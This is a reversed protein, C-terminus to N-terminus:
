KVKKLSEILDKSPDIYITKEERISVFCKRKGPISKIYKIKTYNVAVSSSNQYTSYYAALNACMRIDNETYDSDKKLLVHSGPADKVHFWLDEKRSLDHTIIENQINNKGVYVLSGDIEFTLIQPKQLKQTKKQPILYKEKILEDQIQLVDDLVEANEIQSELLKFYEIENSAQELERNAYIKTNKSKRYKKFYQNANEKIYLKKDLPITIMENTYYNLLEIKDMKENIYSNAILLEGYLKYTEAKKTDDIEKNLKVIKDENKKILKKVFSLINNTKSKIREKLSEDSYFEDLLSSYTEYVKGENQNTYNIDRKPNTSLTPTNDYIIEIIKDIPNESLFALLANQYSLGLVKQCLEKPNNIDKLINKLEDKSYSFPNLKNFTDPFEYNSNPLISRMDSVGIHRLADIVKNNEVIILNSYRGMIEVVLDKIEFDGLENYRSTRLTMIRDTEHTSISNLISGEFHKRLLMTFPKPEKPFSYSKTTINIRPYNPSLSILLKYNERDRRITFLFEDDSVEQIKMIKGTSLNNLENSLKYFLIGDLSM